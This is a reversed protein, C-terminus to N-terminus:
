HWNTTTYTLTDDAWPGDESKLFGAGTYTLATTGIGDVVNTLHNLADYSFSNSNGSPYRIVLLNGVADYSYLTNTKAISWRNTLRGDADYSYKLIYDGNDNIKSIVRGYSDHEWSSRHLKADLLQLLDGAANYTFLTVEGNANTEAIKRRAMDYANTLVFGLQNTYFEMGRATYSFMEKAGTAPYGRVVLRDFSDYSNTVWVGNADVSSTLRDEIDFQRSAVQGLSNSCAVLQGQMNFWNTINIGVSDTINTIEGLSNYFQTLSNTDQDVANTIRGQLDYEFTRFHGLADEISELAGCSCYHYQTVNGLANTVAILHRVGDYGFCNTFGMKDITEVLDLRNYINSIMGESSSQSTLRQLNDWTNTVSLKREDAHTAVLNATYTYSNTRKIELDITKQVWNTLFDATAFYINTTTLGAPTSVSTLHSASDYTNTTVEGVANTYFTVNHHSDYTYGALTEGKPGIVQVLDIGNAAYIYQNTRRLTDTAFGLSYTEIINTPHGWENRKISKYWVNGDPLEAAITSPLPNTGGMYVYSEGVGPYSYFVVQGQTVGDPTPERQKDLIPLINNVSEHTHFWHRLRGKEFDMPTFYNPNNTSLSAFQKPGWHWSNRYMIPWDCDAPDVDSPLVINGGVGYQWYNNIFPNPPDSYPGFVDYSEDRYVYLNTGGVTDVVMVTRNNTEADYKGSVLPVETFSFKTTGYPTTLNTMWRNTDSTDYVFSSSIGGVDVINTLMGADDYRLVIPRNFADLVGTIRNPYVSNTYSLTNTRGDGDVVETLRTIATSGVTVTAYHFLTAHGATDLMKTRFYLNANGPIVAEYTDSAGNRLNVSYSTSLSDYALKSYTFFEGDTDDVVYDRTGGGPVYMTATTGDTDLYSFWSFNWNTGCSFINASVPTETRQEYALRFSIRNGIGPQYGLPEDYVWLDIFPETVMWVPMGIGFGGIQGGGSGRGGGNSGANGGRGGSGGANGDPCPPCTQGGGTANSGNAGSGSGSCSSCGGTLVGGSSVDGAAVGPRPPGGGGKSQGPPGSNEPSDPGSGNGCAGGKVPFNPGGGQAHWCLTSICMLAFFLKSVKIRM